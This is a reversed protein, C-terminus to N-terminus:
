LFAPNSVLHLTAMQLLKRKESLEERQARIVQTKLEIEKIRNLQRLIDTAWITVDSHAESGHHVNESHMEGKDAPPDAESETDKLTLMFELPPPSTIRTSGYAMNFLGKSSEGPEAGSKIEKSQSHAKREKDLDM